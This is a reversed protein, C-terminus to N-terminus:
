PIALSAAIFDLTAQQQFYNCHHVVANSKFDHIRAAPLVPTAAFETMSITDVVLDNRDGKFIQDAGADALRGKNFWKWFKWGPADTEFDSQVVYYTPPAQLKVSRIRALDANNGVRSQGALGPIMQVAADIVPTKAAVSVISTAVRLLALPAILLPMYASMVGGSLQLATGINSLLSLSARLQPPSALSTGGIPCGVLIGRFPGKGGVGFGELAWRVVLGGRSHAIVDLPGSIGQLLRALDFANLIPGVSLTAHDFALVEDYHGFIRKLFAAGTPAASIGDIFSDTKSFTGHVLLLRRKAGTPVVTAGRVIQGTASDRKLEVLKPGGFAAADLHPNLRIDLGCLFQAIENPELPEYQYLEILEGEPAQPVGRRLRRRGTISPPPAGSHWLLAGEDNLILSVSSIPDAEGRRRKLLRRGVEPFQEPVDASAPYIAAETAATDVLRFVARVAATDFTATTASM